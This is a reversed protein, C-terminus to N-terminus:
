IHTARWQAALSACCQDGAFGVVCQSGAHYLVPCESQAAPSLSWVQYHGSHCSTHPPFPYNLHGSKAWYLQSQAPRAFMQKLDPKTHSSTDQMGGEPGVSPLIQASRAPSDAAEERWGSDTQDTSLFHWHDPVSVCVFLSSRIAFLLKICLFLIRSFSFSLHYM